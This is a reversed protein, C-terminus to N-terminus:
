ELANRADASERTIGALRHLDEMHERRLIDMLTAFRYLSRCRPAKVRKRLLASAGPRSECWPVRKM